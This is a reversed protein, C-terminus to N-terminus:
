FYKNQNTFNIKNFDIKFNEFVVFFCKNKLLINLKILFWLPECVALGMWETWQGPMRAYM